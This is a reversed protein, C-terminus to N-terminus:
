VIICCTIISQSFFWYINEKSIISIKKRNYIHILHNSIVASEREREREREREWIACLSMTQKRFFIATSLTYSYFWYFCQYINSWCATVKFILSTPLNFSMYMSKILTVNKNVSTEIETQIVNSFTDM